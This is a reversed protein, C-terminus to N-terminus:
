AQTFKQYSFSFITSFSDLINLKKNIQYIEVLFFFRESKLLKPELYLGETLLIFKPDFYQDLGFKKALM